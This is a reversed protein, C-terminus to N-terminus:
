ASPVHGEDLLEEVTVIDDISVARYLASDEPQLEQDVDFSIIIM